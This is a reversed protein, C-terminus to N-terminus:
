IANEQLLRCLAEALPYDLPPMALGALEKPAYWGIGSAAQPEPTGAWRSCAFLLIILPRSAGATGSAFGVPTLDSPEVQLGLEESLERAAASEPGEGSELKGGPFEWLGGHAGDPLRQQMLVRGRDDM